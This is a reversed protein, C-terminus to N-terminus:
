LSRNAELQDTDGQEGPEEKLISNTLQLYQSKLDRKKREIQPSSQRQHNLSNYQQQYLRLAIRTENLKM